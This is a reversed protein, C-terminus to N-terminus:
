IEEVEGTYRPLAAMLQEMIDDMPLYKPDIKHAEYQAKYFTITRDMMEVDSNPQGNIHMIVVYEDGWPSVTFAFPLGNDTTSIDEDVYLSSNGLIKIIKDNQASRLIEASVPYEVGDIAVVVDMWDNSWWRQYQELTINGIYLWSNGDSNDFMWTNQSVMDGRGIPTEYFPRNQIYDPQASDNQLWNSQIFNVKELAMGNSGYAIRGTIGLNLWMELDDWLFYTGTEPISLPIDMGAYSVTVDGATFVSLISFIIGSNELGKYTLIGHESEIMIDMASLTFNETLSPNSASELSYNASLLEEKTPILDSIKYGTVGLISVDVTVPNEFSANDWEVVNGGMSKQIIGVQTPIIMDGSGLIPQGNITKINTGNRLVNQKTAIAEAVAKGSQANESTADYAQDVAVSGGSGGEITINGSGLISAGNITKINTGSVLTDQKTAIADAIATGSQANASTADYEQDITISGGSNSIANDVYSKTVVSKDTTGMLAVEAHGDTYVAFANSKQSDSTGNGVELLTNEKNNNYRGIVTQAEYAATTYYGGTHSYDGSATTYGGESHASHGSATTGTGEAHADVGSATTDGGEAHAAYESATTHSGEAHACEGSAITYVDGEAHSYNGSATSDQGEAHSGVGSATTNIGEATANAGLTTGAKKGAITYSGDVYEKTAVDDIAEAAANWTTREEETIHIPEDAHSAMADDIQDAVAADGVLDKLSKIDSENIQKRQLNGDADEYDIYFSGSDACFYAWGDTKTSPLNSSDGRSIKFLAM